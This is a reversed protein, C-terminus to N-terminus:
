CLTRGVYIIQSTQPYNPVIVYKRISPVQGFCASNTLQQKIIKKEKRVVKGFEIGDHDVLYFKEKEVMVNCTKLDLPFVNRNFIKELFLGFESM